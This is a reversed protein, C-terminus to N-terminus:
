LGDRVDVDEAGSDLLTKRVQDLEAHEVGVAIGFKNDSFRPDYGIKRFLDPIRCYHLLGLFTALAAFLITLEYGIVFFGPISVIDKSSVRMPWDLSCLIALSWGCICGTIGGILTFRRVPSKEPMTADEIEQRATPSYVRYDLGKEKVKEVTKLLDDMYPYVGVVIKNGRM